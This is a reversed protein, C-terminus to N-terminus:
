YNSSEYRRLGYKLIHVSLLLMIMCIMPICFAGTKAGEKELLCGAPYYSVFAYPILYGFIGQFFPPYIGLPYKAMEGLSIMFYNLSNKKGEMWFSLCSAIWIMCVRIICAGALFFLFLLVKCTDWETDCKCFGITFVAGALVMKNLGDFDIKATLLQLGVPLPRLLFRDLDAMHIMNTIKWAGQFFFNIFGESFLLFGYLVFIEWMTWGGVQPINSYIMGILGLNCAQSFCTFFIMMLFDTRYQAMSRINEMQFLIYLKIYRVFKKINATQM